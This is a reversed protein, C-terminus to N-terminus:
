ASVRARPETLAINFSKKQRMLANLQRALVLYLVRAFNLRHRVSATKHGRLLDACMWHWAQVVM